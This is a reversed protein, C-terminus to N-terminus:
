VAKVEQCFQWMDSKAGRCNKACMLLPGIFPAIMIIYIEVRCLNGLTKLEFM